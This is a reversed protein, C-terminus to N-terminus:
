AAFVEVPIGNVVSTGSPEDLLYEDALQNANVGPQQQTAVSLRTGPATHGFGHPLSVVGAMMEDSIEVEASVEGARSRVLARGGTRLGIREADDPHVLLTCRNRGKALVEVNHLWSNMNRLQRRGVLLLGQHTSSETLAGRLREIDRVLLEHVLSIRRGPTRLIDPLRPQLPGLDIAHPVKSIKALSLGEADDDFGDGYPGTRLLIDLLREPGRRTGLKARAVEPNVHPCRTGPAGMLAALMGEFMFDDYADVTTDNLRAAIEMMVAWHPKADSPPTFIRPSYRVMNRISTSQFLFDFNTEEFATTTPLIVDAHRTTENLYIDISVMFDLSALARSLREGNPTSLVPNGVVTVMARIREDGASDIEEAMVAVPLQGDFEPFGRVRSRFRAYPIPGTDQDVPEAQGTAPRPFMFGGPRDLNGTLLNVVDILWSALTGFAVTCTGLRGYCVAREAAAFDRTLQRITAADIGTVTAVAEPPFDHALKRVDDIGDTFDALRGPRVLGEEFLTHVMAFLLFADTGPRIFLHQSARAATETRRPDVVVSRGGRAHLARLRAEMNPASMLSGQSVLPNGGLCLFFDTRDLDPIPFLWADGYLIRCTLNKPFQDVTAGSFIRQSGLAGIFMASWLMAGFNHGTPNGIYTAIADAGHATRIAKLRSGVYEFAEEWGIEEFGQGTRRLPRRIRDPDEYVAQPAFAKPCLYGRSRPDDADGRITVIRNTGRDVDVVIGCSAECIPCSRHVSEVAM